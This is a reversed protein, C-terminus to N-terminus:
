AVLRRLLVVLWYNKELPSRDRENRSEMSARRGGKSFSLAPLRYRGKIGLDSARGKVLVFSEMRCRM